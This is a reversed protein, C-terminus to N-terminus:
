SNCHLLAGVAIGAVVLGAVVGVGVLIPCVGGDVAELEGRDLSQLETM